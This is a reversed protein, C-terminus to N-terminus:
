RSVEELKIAQKPVLATLEGSIFRRRGALRVRKGEPARVRYKKSTEGVILVDEAHVGAWSQLYLKAPKM